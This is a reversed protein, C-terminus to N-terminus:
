LNLKKRGYIYLPNLHILIDGQYIYNGYKEIYRDLAEQLFEETVNLFEAVEFRNTCGHNYADIFSAVPLVKAYAWLRATKEQKVNSIKTQDLINGITKFHHGLEEALICGKEINNLNKKIAIKGNRYLGKFGYQLDVEIVPIKSYERLLNEYHVQTM